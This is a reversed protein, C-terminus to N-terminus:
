FDAAIYVSAFGKLAASGFESSDNGELGGFIGGVSWEGWVKSTSLQWLYSNDYFNGTVFGSAQLGNIGFLDRTGAYLFYGSETLPEQELSRQNQISIFKEIDTSDLSEQFANLQQRDLADGAYFYEATLEFGYSSTWTINAALRAQWEDESVIDNPGILSQQKQASIELNAVLSDNLLGTLNLGASAREGDALRVLLDLTIRDNITPSFKTLLTSTSNTRDLGLGLVTQNDRLEDFSRENALEPVATFSFAGWETVAQLNATLVGLRNLRLSNPDRSTSTVVSADKFYDTPNYGSGVGNRINVRGLDLFYSTKPSSFHYSVYAERLTNRLSQAPAIPEFTNVPELIDLRNSLVFNLNKSLKNTYRIDAVGRVYDSSGSNLTNVFPLDFSFHQGHLEFRFDIASKKHKTELAAENTSETIPPLWLENGFGESSAEIKTNNSNSASDIIQSANTTLSLSILVAFGKVCKSQFLHM